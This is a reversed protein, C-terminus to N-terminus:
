ASKGIKGDTTLVFKGGATNKTNEIIVDIYFLWAKEKAEFDGVGALLNSKPLVFISLYFFIFFYTNFILLFPCPLLPFLFPSQVPCLTNCYRGM